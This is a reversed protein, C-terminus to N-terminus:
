WFDYHLNQPGRDINWRGLIDFTECDMIFIGPPSGDTGDQPSLITWTTAKWAATSRTLGLTAPRTVVEEPEIIKHIKAKPPIPSRYRRRLDRPRIGPPDPLAARRVRPGTLRSSALSCANWGFGDLIEDGNHVDDGHPRSSQLNALGPKVDIVASSRM